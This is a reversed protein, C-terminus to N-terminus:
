ESRNTTNADEVSVPYEKEKFYDSEFDFLLTHRMPTKYITMKSFEHLTGDEAMNKLNKKIREDLKESFFISISHILLMSNCNATLHLYAISTLTKRNFM